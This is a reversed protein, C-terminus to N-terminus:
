SKLATVADFNAKIALLMDFAHSSFPLVFSASSKGGFVDFGDAAQYCAIAELGEILVDDVIGKWVIDPLPHSLGIPDSSRLSAPRLLAFGSAARGRPGSPCEPIGGFCELVHIEM